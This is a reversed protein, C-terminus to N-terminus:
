SYREPGEAQPPLQRDEGGEEHGDGHPGRHALYNRTMRHLLIAVAATIGVILLMAVWYGVTLKQGTRTAEALDGLAFVLAAVGGLVWPGLLLWTGWFVIPKIGGHAATRFWFGRSYASRLPDTTAMSSVPCGCEACFDADPEVERLCNPCLPRAPDQADRESSRDEDM